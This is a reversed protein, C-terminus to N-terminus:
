AKLVNETSIMAISCYVTQLLFSYESTHQLFHQSGHKCPKKGICLQFIAQIAIGRETFDQLYAM